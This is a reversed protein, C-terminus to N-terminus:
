FLNSDQYYWIRIVVRIVVSLFVSAAIIVIRISCGDWPLM